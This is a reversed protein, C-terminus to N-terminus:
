ALVLLTAQKWSTGVPVFVPMDPSSHLLWSPLGYWSLLLVPSHSTTGMGLVTRAIPNSTM